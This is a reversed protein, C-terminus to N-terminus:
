VGVNEVTDVELWDFSITYIQEKTEDMFKHSFNYTEVYFIEGLANKLVKKNNNNIFDKLNNLLDIDITYDGTEDSYNYPMTTLKGTRYKAKGYSITPYQTYNNYVKMDINVPISDTQNMADFKYSTNTTPDILFWGWFNPTASTELGYGEGNSSLTFLSYTYSKNNRSTKDIYSLTSKSFDKLTTFISESSLKRKLRWGTIPASSIVNGAELTNEYDAIFSTDTGWTQPTSSVIANIQTETLTINQAHVNDLLVKGTFIVKNYAM